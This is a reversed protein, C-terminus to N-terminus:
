EYVIFTVYEGNDGAICKGGLLAKIMEKTLVFTDAGWMYGYEEKAKDTNEIIKVNDMILYVENREQQVM